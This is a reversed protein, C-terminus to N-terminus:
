NKSFLGLCNKKIAGEVMLWVAISGYDKPLLMKLKGIENLLDVVYYVNGKGDKMKITKYEKSFSEDSIYKLEFSSSAGDEDTFLIVYSRFITDKSIWVDKGLAKRDIEHGSAKDMQVMYIAKATYNLVDKSPQSYSDLCKIAFFFLICLFRLSNIIM